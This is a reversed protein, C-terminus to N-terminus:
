GGCSNACADALASFPATYAAWAASQLCPADTLNKTTENPKPTDFVSRGYCGLAQEVAVPPVKTTLNEDARVNALHQKLRGTKSEDSGLLNGYLEGPTNTLFVRADPVDESDLFENDQTGTGRAPVTPPKSETAEQFSHILTPIVDSKERDYNDSPGYPNTPM